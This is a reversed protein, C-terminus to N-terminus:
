LCGNDAFSYYGNRTVILHDEVPLHLLHGAASIKKTMSTDEYSPRLSGSPHNHALILSTANAKMAAVFVLKPELITGTCGGTSLEYIGLVDKARNLLLVKAQEVFDIKNEDWAGMLVAYAEKSSRVKVRDEIPSGSKYILEIESVKPFATKM